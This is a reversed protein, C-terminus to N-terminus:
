RDAAARRPEACQMWVGRLDTGVLSAGDLNAGTLDAQHLDTRDLRAFRLDRGRLNLTPEGPTVDKDVVLDPDVVQPQPPVHRAASDSDSGGAAPLAYGFVYRGGREIASRETASAAALRDVAEGPITAVFLSFCAVLVLLAATLLLGLPHHM